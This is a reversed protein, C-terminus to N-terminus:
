IVIKLDKDEPNMIRFHYKEVFRLKDQIIEKPREVCSNIATDM